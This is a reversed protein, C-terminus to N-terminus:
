LRIVTETPPAAPPAFSKTPPAGAGGPGGQLVAVTQNNCDIKCKYHSLFNSGLIVGQSLNPLVYFTFTSVDGNINVSLDVTGIVNLRRGDASLLLKQQTENLPKVNADFKRLMYTSICSQSAGTDVLAITDVDNIVINIRNSNMEKITRM